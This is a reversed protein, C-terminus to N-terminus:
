AKGLRKAWGLKIAAVRKAHVEPNNLTKKISAKRKKEKDPNSQSKRLGAVVRETVGARKHANKLGEIRRAQDCQSLQETRQSRAEPNALKEKLTKSIAKRVGPRNMAKKMSSKHKSKVEPKAHTARNKEKVSEDLMPNVDGGRTQNYGWKGFTGYADILKIELSNLESDPAKVLIEVKFNEIGYKKIAASIATEEREWAHQRFRAIGDGKHRASGKAQGIYRKGSPSTGM